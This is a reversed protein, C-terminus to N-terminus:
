SYLASCSVICAGVLWAHVGCDVSSLAAAACKSAILSCLWLVGGPLQYSESMCAM